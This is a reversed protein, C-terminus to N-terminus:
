LDFLIAIDLSTHDIEYIGCRDPSEDSNVMISLRPRRGDALCIDLSTHDIECIRCLDSREGSNRIPRIPLSAYGKCVLLNPCPQGMGIMTQCDFGM